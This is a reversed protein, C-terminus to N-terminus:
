KFFDEHQDALFRVLEPSDAHEKMSQVMYRSLDRQFQPTQITARALKAREETSLNRQREEEEKVCPHDDCCNILEYYEHNQVTLDHELLAVGLELTLKLQVINKTDCSHTKGCIACVPPNVFPM